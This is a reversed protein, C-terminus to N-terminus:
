LKQCAARIANIEAHSTPDNDTTVHNSATAILEGDRVVVAGFPGGRLDSVNQHAMRIAERMFQQQQKSASFDRVYKLEQSFLLYYINTLSIIVNAVVVPWAGDLSGYAIFLLCGATNIIRLVKVKKFFFSVVLTASALYGIIQILENPM